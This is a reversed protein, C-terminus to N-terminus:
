VCLQAMLFLHASQSLTAAQSNVYNYIMGGGCGLLNKLELDGDCIDNVTLVLRKVYFGFFVLVCSM